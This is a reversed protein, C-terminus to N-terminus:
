FAEVIRGKLKKGFFPSNFSKSEWNKKTVETEENVAILVLGSTSGEHIGYQDMNLIKAPASTFKDLITELELSDHVESFFTSFAYQINSIGFDAYEFELNKQETTLPQHDSCVADITGDKLGAILEKRDAETRFPPLVKLNSDFDIMDEDTFSLQHAAISCTVHLKEKKAQRILKVAGATSILSFHLKGGTYKLIDLDRKIRIEESINSLGKMGMQVSTFGEHVMGKPNVERDLPYSMVLGGFNRTYELSRVMLETPIHQMDDSFAVAGAKFMDFMESMQKGAAGKSLCGVPLINVPVPLKKSLIYSVQSKSDVPPYTLPSTLVYKFGGKWAAASGSELTEQDEHGPDCFNAKLDIFGPAVYANKVSIIKAKPDQITAAIKEIRGKDILIDRKKGHFEGNKDIIIASKILTKM